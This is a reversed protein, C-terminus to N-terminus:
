EEVEPFLLAALAQKVEDTKGEYINEGAGKSGAAKLKGSQAVVGKKVLYTVLAYAAEKTTGPNAAM